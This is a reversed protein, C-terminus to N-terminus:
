VAQALPKPAASAPLHSQNELMATAAASTLPKSLLYGQGSECHLDRLHAFQAETEIGEVHM